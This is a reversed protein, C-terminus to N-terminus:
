RTSSAGSWPCRTPSLTSGRASAQMGERNSRARRRGPCLTVENFDAVGMARGTGDNRRVGRGRDGEALRSLARAPEGGPLAALFTEIAVADGALLLTELEEWPERESALPQRPESEPASRGRPEQESETM